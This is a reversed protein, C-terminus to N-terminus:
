GAVERSPSEDTPEDSAEARLHSQFRRVQDTLSRNDLRLRVRDVLAAFLLAALAGQLLNGSRYALGGGILALLVGILEPWWIELAEVFVDADVM